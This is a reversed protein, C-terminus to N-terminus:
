LNICQTCLQSDVARGGERTLHNQEEPQAPLDVIDVYDQSRGGLEQLLKLSEWAAAAADLTSLNQDQLWPTPSNNTKHTEDRETENKLRKQIPHQVVPGAIRM